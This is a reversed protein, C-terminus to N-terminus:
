TIERYHINVTVPQANALTINVDTDVDGTFKASRGLAYVKYLDTVVTNITMDITVLNSVTNASDPIVQVWIIQIKKGASPTIVDSATRLKAYPLLASKLTDEIPQTELEGDIRDLM